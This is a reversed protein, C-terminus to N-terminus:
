TRLSARKKATALQMDSSIQAKTDRSLTPSSQVVPALNTVGTDPKKQSMEGAQTFDWLRLEVVWGPKIVSDWIDPLIIEGTPSLIDYSGSFIRSNVTEVHSFSRRILNEMNQFNTIMDAQLWHDEANLSSVPWSRCKQIPFLFKRGLCDKM